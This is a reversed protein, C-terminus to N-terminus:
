SLGPVTQIVDLDDQWEEDVEGLEDIASSRFEIIQLFGM